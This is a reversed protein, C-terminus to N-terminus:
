MGSKLSQSLIESSIVTTVIIRTRRRRRKTDREGIIRGRPQM